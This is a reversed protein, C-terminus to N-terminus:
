KEKRFVDIVGVLAVGAAIIAEQQEQSLAVGFATIIFILGKWTSTEKLKSILKKM